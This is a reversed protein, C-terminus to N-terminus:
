ATFMKTTPVTISGDTNWDHHYGHNIYLEGIQGDMDMGIKIIDNVSGVTGDWSASSHLTATSNSFQARHVRIKGGAADGTVALFYTRNTFLDGGTAVASGFDETISTILDSAGDDNDIFFSRASGSAAVKELLTFDAATDLNFWMVITFDEDANFELDETGDIDAHSGSGTLNLVAGGWKNWSQNSSTAGGNPDITYNGTDDSFTLAGSNADFTSAFVVTGTSPADPQNILEFADDAANRVYWEVDKFVADTEDYIAQPFWEFDTGDHRKEAGPASPYQAEVIAAETTVVITDLALDSHWISGTSPMTALFRFKSSPSTLVTTENRWVDTGNQAVDVGTENFENVYAAGDWRDLDLDAMFNGRRNYWFDVQTVNEGIIPIWDLEFEDNAATPSSAEIYAYQTGAQAGTPGVGSSGTGGSRLNWRRATSGSGLSNAGTPDTINFRDTLSSESEMTITYTPM